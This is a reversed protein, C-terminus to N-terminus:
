AFAALSHGSPCPCPAVQHMRVEGRHFLSWDCRFKAFSPAWSRLAPKLTPSILDSQPSQPKEGKRHGVDKVAGDASPESSSCSVLDSGTSSCTDEQLKGAPPLAPKTDPLPALLEDFLKDMKMLDEDIEQPAELISDTFAGQRLREVENMQKKFYKRDGPRSARKAHELIQLVGQIATLQLELAGLDLHCAFHQGFGAMEISIEMCM